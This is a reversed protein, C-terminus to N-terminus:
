EKLYNIGKKYKRIRKIKSWSKLKNMEDDYFREPVLYFKNFIESYLNKIDVLYMLLEQLDVSIKSTIWVKVSVAGSISKSVFKSYDYNSKMQNRIAPIGINFFEFKKLGWYRPNRKHGYSKIKKTKRVNNRRSGTRGALSFKMSTIDHETTLNHLYRRFPRLWVRLWHAVDLNPKKNYIVIDEITLKQFEKSLRYDVINKYWLDFHQYSLKSRQKIHTNFILFRETKNTLYELNNYTLYNHQRKENILNVLSHPWRTLTNKYYDFYGRTMQGYKVLSLLFRTKNRFKSITKVKKVRWLILAMVRKALIYSSLYYKKLPWLRIIVWKGYINYLLDEFYIVFPVFIKRKTDLEANQIIRGFYFSALIHFRKWFSHPTKRLRKIYKISNIWNNLNLKKFKTKYYRLKNLFYYKPKLRVLSRYNYKLLGLLTKVLIFNLLMVHSKNISKIKYLVSIKLNYIWHNRWINLLYYKYYEMIYLPIIKRYYTKFINDFYFLKNNLKDERKNNSFNSFFKTNKGEKNNYRNWYYYWKYYIGTFNNGKIYSNPKYNNNNPLTDWVKSVIINNVINSYEKKIYNLSYIIYWINSFLLIDKSKNYISYLSLYQPQFHNRGNISLYKNLILLLSYELKDWVKKTNNSNYINKIRNSSINESNKVFNQFRRKKRKVYYIDNNKNKLLYNKRLKDQKNIWEKRNLCFLLFDLNKKRNNLMGKLKYKSLYKELKIIYNNNYSLVYGKLLILKWFNKIKIIKKEKNNKKREVGEKILRLKRRKNKSLNVNLNDSNSFLKSIFFLNYLLKRVENKKNKIIFMNGTIEERKNSIKVNIINDIEKVKDILKFSSNSFQTKRKNLNVNNNIHKNIIESNFNNLNNDIYSINKKDSLKNKNLNYSNKEEWMKNSYWVYKKGKSDEKDKNLERSYLHFSKLREKFLLSNIHKGRRREYVQKKKFKIFSIKKEGFKKIRQDRGNKRKKIRLNMSEIKRKLEKKTLCVKYNPFKHYKVKYFKKGKNINIDEQHNDKNIIDVKNKNVDYINQIGLKNLINIYINSFFSNKNIIIKDYKFLSFKNTLLIINKKLGENMKILFLCVNIVLGINYKFIWEEYTNMVKNYYPFIKPEIINIYFFKPRNITENVKKYMDAYLSYMYKYTIRRLLLNKLKKINYTKNNFIFLDIFLNFSTHKFIPKGLLLKRWKRIKTNKKPEYGGFLKIKRKLMRKKMKISKNIHYKLWKSKLIGSHYYTTRNLDGITSIRRSFRLIFLFNKYWHNATNFKRSKNLIKDMIQRRKIWKVSFFRKILENTFRDLITLSTIEKQLFSYLNTIWHKSQSPLSKEVYKSSFYYNPLLLKNTIKRSEIDEIHGESINNFIYKYENMHKRYYKINNLNIHEKTRRVNFYNLLKNYDIKSILNKNLLDKNTLRTNKNSVNFNSNNKQKRYQMFYKYILTFKKIEEEKDKEAQLKTVINMRSINFISPNKNQKKYYYILYRTLRELQARSYKGDKKYLAWNLYNLM